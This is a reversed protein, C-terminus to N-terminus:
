SVAAPGSTAARGDPEIVTGAGDKGAAVDALRRASTVVARRGGGSLFELAAEVKPGMSGAAFQGQVLYAQAQGAGLRYAPRQDPRGFDLMVADVGTLLYLEGAGLAAGLVAAAHDKDIVGDVGHLGGSGDRSVPIGGGGAAVVVLGAAVLARVATLEVIDHPRPSPVVRRYGRGSDERVQWGREAALERARAAPFFPGVPKVPDHFAPDDPDVEVHTVVAVASRPGCVRDIERVLVSGLQGQTMAGLQHLPQAPVTEVACEQQISLNGVQPGNGHVVVVPRQQHLVAVARAMDAANAAIQGATGEQGAGTLANGGIAVVAPSTM